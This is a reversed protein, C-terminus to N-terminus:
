SLLKNVIKAGFFYYKVMFRLLSENGETEIM